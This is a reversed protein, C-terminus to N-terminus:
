GNGRSGNDSVWRQYHRRVLAGAEEGSVQEIAEIPPIRLTAGEFLININNGFAHPNNQYIAAMVQEVGADEIDLSQAIGCLTEGHRVPGYFVPAEPQKEELPTEPVCPDAGATDRNLWRAEACAIERESMVFAEGTDVKYRITRLVPNAVPVFGGNGLVTLADRLSVPGLSRHVEPLDFQYLVYQHRGSEQPDELRYGSNMLLFELADGVKRIARPFDVEVTVSLIDTEEPRPTADVETYRSLKVTNGAEAYGPLAFVFPLCLLLFRQQLRKHTM